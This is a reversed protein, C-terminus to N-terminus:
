AGTFIGIKPVVVEGVLTNPNDYTATELTPTPDTIDGRHVTMKSGNIETGTYVNGFQDTAKVVATDPWVSNAVNDEGRRAAIFPGGGGLAPFMGGLDGDRPYSAFSGGTLIPAVLAPTTLFEVRRNPGPNAGLPNYAKVQGQWIWRGAAFWVRHFSDDLTVDFVDNGAGLDSNNVQLSDEITAAGLFGFPARMLQYTHTQSFNNGQIEIWYVSGDKVTPPSMVWTTGGPNADTSPKPLTYTSNIAFTLLDIEVMMDQMSFGGGLGSSAFAIARGNGTGVWEFQLDIGAPAEVAVEVETPVSGVFRVVYLNRPDSNSVYVGRREPGPMGPPDDAPVSFPSGQLTVSGVSAPGPTIPSGFTVYSGGAAVRIAGKGCEPSGTTDTIVEVNCGPKKVKVRGVGAGEVAFVRDNQKWRQLGRFAAQSLKRGQTM